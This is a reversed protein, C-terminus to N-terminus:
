KSGEKNHCVYCLNQEWNKVRLHYRTKVMMSHCSLCEMKGDVFMAGRQEAELTPKFENKRNPPPYNTTNPHNKGLFCVPMCNPRSKIIKDHCSLCDKQRGSVDVQYGHHEVAEARFYRNTVLILLAVTILLLSLHIHRM